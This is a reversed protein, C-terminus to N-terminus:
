FFATNIQLLPHTTQTAYILRWFINFVKLPNGGPQRELAEFIPVRSLWLAVFFFHGNLSVNGPIVWIHKVHTKCWNRFFPLHPWWKPVDGLVTKARNSSEPITGITEVARISDQTRTAGAFWQLHCALHFFPLLNLRPKSWASYVAHKLKLILLYCIESNVTAYDITHSRQYRM